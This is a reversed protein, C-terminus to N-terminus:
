KSYFCSTVVSIKYQPLLLEEPLCYNTQMKRDQGDMWLETNHPFDVHLRGSSNVGDILAWRIPVNAEGDHSFVIVVPHSQALDRRILESVQKVNDPGLATLVPKSRVGTLKVINGLFDKGPKPDHLKLALGQDYIQQFLRDIEVMRPPNDDAGPNWSLHNFDVAEAGKTAAFKAPRYYAILKALVCTPSYGIFTENSEKTENSFESYLYDNDSFFDTLLPEIRDTPSKIDPTKIAKEEDSYRVGLGNTAFARVYYSTNPALNIAHGRYWERHALTFTADRVTPNKSTSWCFGYDTIIPEGRFKITCAATFSTPQIDSIEDLRIQPLMSLTYASGTVPQHHIVLDFTLTDGHEEINKFSVGGDLLNPLRSSPETTMNFETRKHSKGFLCNNTDGKGVFFPDNPRYIYFYDPAGLYNERGLNVASILMGEHRPGVGVTKNEQHIYEVHYFYHPHSSPILYGVAQDGEPDIHRPHLTYTGSSKITPHNKEEIFGHHYFRSFSNATPGYSLLCAEGSIGDNFRGIRYVDPAGLCHGLEHALTGGSFNDIQVKSNPWMPEGWKCVPSYYVWPDFDKGTSTPKKKKSKRVRVMKTRDPDASRNQYFELLAASVEQAPSAPRTTVYNYCIFRPKAGRYVTNAFKLAVENMKSVREGGEEADRWGIPNEWYDYECYYGYFHPDQYVTSEDPMAVLKPWTIGNSYTKFYEELNAGSGPSKAKADGGGEQHTGTVQEAKKIARSVDGSIATEKFTITIFGVLFEGTVTPQKAPSYDPVPAATPVEAKKEAGNVPGGLCALAIAWQM